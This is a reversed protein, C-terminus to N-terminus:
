CLRLPCTTATPPTRHFSKQFSRSRGPSRGTLQLKAYLRVRENSEDFGAAEQQCRAPGVGPPSTNALLVALRRTGNRAIRLSRSAPDLLHEYSRPKRPNDPARFSPLSAVDRCRRDGRLAKQFADAARATTPADLLASPDIRYGGVRSQGHTRKTTASANSPRALFTMREIWTLTYGSRSSKTSAIRSEREGRRMTFAALWLPM